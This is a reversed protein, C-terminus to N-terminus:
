LTGSECAMANIEIITLTCIYLIKNLTCTMTRTNTDTWRLKVEYIGFEYIGFNIKKMSERVYTSVYIPYWTSRGRVIIRYFDNQEHSTMNADYKHRLLMDSTVINVMRFLLNQKKRIKTFIVLWYCFSKLMREISGVKKTGKERTQEDQVMGDEPSSSAATAGALPV